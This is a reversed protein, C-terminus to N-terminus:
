NKKAIEKNKGDKPNNIKLVIKKCWNQTRLLILLSTSFNAIYERVQVQIGDGMILMGWELSVDTVTSLGVHVWWLWECNM